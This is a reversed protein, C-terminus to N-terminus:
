LEKDITDSDNEKTKSNEPLIEKLILSATNKASILAGEIVSFPIEIANPFFLGSNRGGMRIPSISKKPSLKPYPFTFQKLIEGGEFMKSFVSDTLKKPTFLKYFPNGNKFFGNIAISIFDTEPNEPSYIQNPIKGEKKTFYSPILEGSVISVYFTTYEKRHDKPNFNPIDIDIMGERWPIALIIYDFNETTEKGADQETDSLQRITLQFQESGEEKKFISKVEHQYKVRVQYQELAHLLEKVVRKNGGKVSYLDDGEAIMGILGALANLETGQGAFNARTCISAFGNILKDSIKKNKLFENFSIETLDFLDLKDMLEKITEFTFGENQYDYVQLFLKLARKIEKHTKLLNIPGFKYLMKFLDYYQSSSERFYFDSGDWFGFSAVSDNIGEKSYM